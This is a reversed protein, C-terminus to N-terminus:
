PQYDPNVKYILVSTVSGPMQSYFTPSAYVLYFPDNDPDLYKIDKVYIPIYGNSFEDHITDTVPNVYKWISFPFLKGLTSNEM